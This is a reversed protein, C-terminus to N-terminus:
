ARFSPLRYQIRHHGGAIGVARHHLVDQGSIGVEVIIYLLAIDAAQRDPVADLLLIQLLATAHFVGVCVDDLVEGGIFFHQLHVLEAWIGEAFILEQM